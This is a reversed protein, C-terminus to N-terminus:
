PSGSRGPTNPYATSSTTRARSASVRGATSPTSRSFGYAIFRRVRDRWLRRRRSVLDEGWSMAVIRANSDKLGRVRVSTLFTDSENGANLTDAVALEDETATSDDRDYDAYQRLVAVVDDFSNAIADREEHVRFTEFDGGTRQQQRDAQILENQSDSKQVSFFM